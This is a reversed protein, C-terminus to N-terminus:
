GSYPRLLPLTSVPEPNAPIELAGALISGASATLFGFALATLGSNASRAPEFLNLPARFGESSGELGAREGEGRNEWAAITERNGPHAASVFQRRPPGLGITPWM